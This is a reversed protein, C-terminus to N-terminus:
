PWNRPGATRTRASQVWSSMASMQGQEGLHRFGSEHDGLHIALVMSRDDSEHDSVHIALVVHRFGSEHDGLHIALVV